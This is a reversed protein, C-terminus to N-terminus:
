KMMQKNNIKIMKNIKNMMTKKHILQFQFQIIMQSKNMKIKKLSIM